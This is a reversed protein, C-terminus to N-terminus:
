KGMSLALSIAQQLAPLTIPKSLATIVPEHEVVVDALDPHGSILIVPINQRTLEEATALGDLIPMELDVLAADVQERSCTELLQAGDSVACSVEYGLRSLLQVMVQREDPNDDALALRIAM